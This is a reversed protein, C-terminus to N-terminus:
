RTWLEIWNLWGTKRLLHNIKSSIQMLISVSLALFALFLYPMFKIVLSFCCRLKLGTTLVVGLTKHNDQLRRLYDVFFLQLSFLTVKRKRPSDLFNDMFTNPNLGKLRITFNFQRLLPPPPLHHRKHHNRSPTKMHAAFEAAETIVNVPVMQLWCIFVNLTITILSASLAITPNFWIDIVV